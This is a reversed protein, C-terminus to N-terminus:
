KKARPRERSAGDWYMPPPEPVRRSLLLWREFSAPEVEVSACYRVYQQYRERDGSLTSPKLTSRQVHRMQTFRRAEADM